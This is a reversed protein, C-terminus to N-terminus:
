LSYIIVYWAHLYEYTYYAYKIYGFMLVVM